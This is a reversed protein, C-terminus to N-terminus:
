RFQSFYISYPLSMSWLLSKTHIAFEGDAFHEIIMNGLPSNLNQCIKEALYRSNTGSFVKFSSNPSAM